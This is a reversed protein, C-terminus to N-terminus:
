RNEHRDGCLSKFLKDHEAATRQIDFKRKVTTYANVILQDCLKDHHFLEDVARCLAEPQDPPILLGDKHDTIIDPLADVNTVVVPKKLVMYEAVALGFGEWRSPLVAVDFLNVYDLPNNVWGTILLRDHFAHKRSYSEVDARLNGDGVMIFYAHPIESLILNAAKIFVDPAKQESLRGVVGVVYADKPIHLLERTIEANPQRKEIQEIDVGNFIVKLKDESCIRHELASQKEFDSICVICSTLKSLMREVLTYFAQKPKRCKMNFSWGHANYICHNFFGLNSIRGIAGAKSSHLYVIDPSQISIIKRIQFIAKLDLLLNIDHTIDVMIFQDVLSEYDKQIYDKSCVLIHTYQKQDLFNLLMKLYVDVGGAAEVVHLVKIKRM